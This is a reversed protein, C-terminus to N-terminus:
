CGAAVLGAVGMAVTAIIIVEYDVIVFSQFTFLDSPALNVNSHVCM